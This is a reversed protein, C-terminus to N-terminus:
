KVTRRDPTGALEKEFHITRSASDITQTSDHTRIRSAESWVLADGRPCAYSLPEGNQVGTPPGDM